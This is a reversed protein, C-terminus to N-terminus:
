PTNSAPAHAAQPSAQQQPNPARLMAVSSIVVAVVSGVAAIIAPLKDASIWGGEPKKHVATTSEQSKSHAKRGNPGLGEAALLANVDDIRESHESLRKEEKEFQKEGKEMRSDINDLRPYIPTVAIEIATKIDEKNQMRAEKFKEDLRRDFEFMLKYMRADFEASSNAGNNDSRDGNIGM